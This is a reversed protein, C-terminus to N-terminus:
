AAVIEQNARAKIIIHVEDEVGWARVAILFTKDDMM